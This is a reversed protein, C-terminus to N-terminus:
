QHGGKFDMSLQDPTPAVCWLRRFGRFERADLPDGSSRFATDTFLSERTLGKLCVGYPANVAAFEFSDVGRWHLM